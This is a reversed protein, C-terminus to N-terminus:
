SAPAPVSFRVVFGKAGPDPVEAIWLYEGPELTVRLYATSAAPMENVGGLFEAPSPTILGGAQRWDMWAEVAGPDAGDPLRALHVDHGVFNAYATQDAFHVAITQPGAAPEGTMTIGQESSLELRLTATPPATADGGDVVTLQHVMGHVTTDRNFSHFTGGTKVYCEILYTGPDLYLTTESSGGPSTLGPGGMFTVQGFWAPLTGFAAQALEVEGAALHDMGAQFTPAVERQQRELDVGEPLKEILAFHTIAAENRFRVTVWGATVTDPATFELGHAVLEM